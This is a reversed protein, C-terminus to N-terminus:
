DQMNQPYSRGQMNPPYSMAYGNNQDPTYDDSENPMAAAQFLNGFGKLLFQEVFKEPVV